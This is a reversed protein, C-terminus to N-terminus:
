ASELRPTISMTLKMCDLTIERLVNSGADEITVLFEASDFEANEQFELGALRGDSDLPFIAECGIITKTLECAVYIYIVEGESVQFAFAYLSEHYLYDAAFYATSPVPLAPADLPFEFWHPGDNVSDDDHDDLLEHAWVFLAGTPTLFCFLDVGYGFNYELVSIVDSAKLPTPILVKHDQHAFYLEQTKTSYYLSRADLLRLFESEPRLVQSELRPDPSPYNERTKKNPQESGYDSSQRRHMSSGAYM